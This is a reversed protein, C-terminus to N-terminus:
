MISARKYGRAQWGILDLCEKVVQLVLAHMYLQTKYMRGKKFDMTIDFLVMDVALSFAQAALRHLM